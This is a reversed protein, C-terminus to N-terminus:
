KQSYYTFHVPIIPTIKSFLLFAYYTFNRAYDAWALVSRNHALRVHIYIVGKMHFTCIYVQVNKHDWKGDPNCPADLELQTCSVDTSPHTHLWVHINPSYEKYMHSKRRGFITIAIPYHSLVHKVCNSAGESGKAAWVSRTGYLPPHSSIECVHM